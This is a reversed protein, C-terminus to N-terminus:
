QRLSDQSAVMTWYKKMWRASKHIPCSHKMGTENDLMLDYIQIELLRNCQYGLFLSFLTKNLILPTNQQTRTM